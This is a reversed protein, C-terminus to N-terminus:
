HKDTDNTEGKEESNAAIEGPKMSFIKECKQCRLPKGKPLKLLTVIGDEGQDVKLHKHKIVRVTGCTLCKIKLKVNGPDKQKRAPIKKDEPSDGNKKKDLHEELNGEESSM